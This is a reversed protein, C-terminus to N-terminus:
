GNKVGLAQRPKFGIDISANTPYTKFEEGSKSFWRKYTEKDAYFQLAGKLREIEKEQSEILQIAKPLDTRASACFIVNEHKMSHEYPLWPEPTAEDCLRKVKEIWAKTETTM